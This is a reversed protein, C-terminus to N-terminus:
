SNPVEVVTMWMRGGFERRLKEALREGSVLSGCIAFITSGSGSMMAGIAGERKVFELMMAILPYKEFVPLELSNYMLPIADVLAGLQLHWALNAARGTLGNLAGPFKSLAQYAWATTVGFGPHCLVFAAGKLALFPALPTVIEGRGIGSAPMEQLFFPIDSGLGAALGVIEVATLPFGFIENLGLLTHAADSSGGGLGASAPVHKVLRISVGDQAGIRSLFIRAARWSLNSADSPVGPADCELRIGVGVREIELEDCIQIPYLITELEHFGDLRKGLINLLLNVKCPARRSVIM